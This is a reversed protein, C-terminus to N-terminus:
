HLKDGEEIFHKIKKHSSLATTALTGPSIYPPFTLTLISSLDFLSILELDHYDRLENLWALNYLQKLDNNSM